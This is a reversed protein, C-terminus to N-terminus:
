AIQGKRSSPDLRALCLALSGLPFGAFLCGDVQGRATVQASQGIADARVLRHPDGTESVAEAVDGVTVMLWSDRSANQTLRVSRASWCRCMVVSTWKRSLEVTVGAMRRGCGPLGTNHPM